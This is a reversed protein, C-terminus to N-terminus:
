SPRDPANFLTPRSPPADEYHLRRHSIRFLTDIQEAWIGTGRMRHGFRSDNLKGDRLARVRNLVKDKRAPFHQSLWGEFLPGLGHPLRLMVYHAWRAGAARAAQLIGPVEDDNLGPIIPAM